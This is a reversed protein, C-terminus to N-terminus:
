PPTHLRPTWCCRPYFTAFMPDLQVHVKPLLKSVTASLTLVFNDSLVFSCSKLATSTCCCAVKSHVAAFCLLRLLPLSPPLLVLLRHPVDDQLEEENEKLTNIEDTLTNLAAAMEAKSKALLDQVKAEKAVSTALAENSEALEQATGAHADKEM